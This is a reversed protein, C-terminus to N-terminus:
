SVTCGTVVALSVSTNARGRSIRGGRLYDPMLPSTRAGRGDPHSTPMRPVRLPVDTSSSARDTIPTGTTATARGPATSPTDRRTPAATASAPCRTTAATPRRASRGTRTPIRGTTPARVTVLNTATPGLGAGHVSMPTPPTMRAGRNPRPPAPSVRIGPSARAVRSIPRIQPRSSRDARGARGSVPRPGNAVIPQRPRPPSAPNPRPPPTPNPRPPPTPNPRPPPTPNPRAITVPVYPIRPARVARASTPIPLSAARGARHPSGTTKM